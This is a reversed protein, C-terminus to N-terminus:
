SLLAGAGAGASGVTFNVVALSRGVRRGSPPMWHTAVGM